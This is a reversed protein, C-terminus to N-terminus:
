GPAGKATDAGRRPEVTHAWEAAVVEINPIEPRQSPRPAAVVHEIACALREIHRDPVLTVWGPYDNAVERLGLLDYAVVPVGSALAELVANPSGEFGSTSVFVAANALEAEPHQLWGTRRLNTPDGPRPEPGVAVFSLQPLMRACDAFDHLRKIPDDRGTWVIATGPADTTTACDVGNPILRGKTRLRRGLEGPEDLLHRAPAVILDATDFMWGTVRRSLWHAERLSVESTGSFGGALRIVARARCLKAAAMAALTPYGLQMALVVDPRRSLIRVFMDIAAAASQLGHPGGPRIRTIESGGVRECRPMGARRRTLVDVDWGHRDVLVDFVRRMQREAGGELPHFSDSVAVLRM